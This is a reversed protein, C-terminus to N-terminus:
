GKLMIVPNGPKRQEYVSKLERLVVKKPRILKRDHSLACKEAPSAELLGIQACLQQVNYEAHGVGPAAEEDEEAKNDAKWTCYTSDGLFIYEDNVTMILCGKSHSSPIPRIEIKLPEGTITEDDEIVMPESVVTGHKTHKYTQSSVYIDSYGPREYTTSINDGPKVGPEDQRHKCVWWSHDGHFHSITANWEGEISYLFDLCDITSGVDYLYTRKKGYVVIVDSSLPEECCPIYSMYENIKKLEVM